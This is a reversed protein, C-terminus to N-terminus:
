KETESHPEKSEDAQSGTSAKAEKLFSKIARGGVHRLINLCGRATRTNMAYLGWRERRHSMWHKKYDDDGCLYDVTHVRDLQIVHQMLKATLITGVSDKVFREDYSLKFISAVGKNVIWLQAAAAEGNLYVVGLRLWGNKAATHALGPIFNPYPEPIKWSARYVADYGALAEDLGEASTVIQIRAQFHKDLRRTKYPIKKSLFSPLNKLYEDYSRNGVELYWNGFAFFPQVVMGHDRFAQMLGIYLPSERDMPTLEITDWRPRDAAIASVMASLIPAHDSCSHDILPGFLPTYYNGLATLRHGRQGSRTSVIHKMLLLGIPTHRQDDAEVGYLRLTHDAPLATEVFNQFWSLSYSFGRSTWQDFLQAYGQPLDTLSDYISVQM